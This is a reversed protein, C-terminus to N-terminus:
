RVKYLFAATMALGTLVVFGRVLDPRLRRALTGGAYGGLTAFLAMWLAHSWVIAGSAAYLVVAILTLIASVFNKIGNMRGMDTHGLAGLVALLLIGLGGNFYGGYVAVAVIGLDALWPGRPKADISRRRVLGPGIAFLLTAALLLWPVIRAFAQNSTSLLLAAGAAGGLVSLVALRLLSPSMPGSLERRMAWAGALYGPLLAATGTANASVLPVGVMALAPLTLFSGGGAVANLAGALAAASGLLAWDLM